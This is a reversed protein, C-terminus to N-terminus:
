KKDDKKEEIEITPYNGQIPIFLTDVNEAKSEITDSIKSVVSQMYEEVQKAPMNGVPIKLVVLSNDKVEHVEMLTAFQIAEINKNKNM